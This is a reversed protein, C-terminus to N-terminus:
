AEFRTVNGPLDWAEALITKGEMQPTFEWWDGDSRLADGKELVKGEEDLITVQVKAVMVNDCAQVLIRGERREIRNIVPPHWWDSVAINYATKMPMGAALQAYIPHIQAAQRGYFAAERFQEQHALQKESFDLTQDFPVHSVVTSGDPMQRYIWDAMKGSLGKISGNFSVKTM